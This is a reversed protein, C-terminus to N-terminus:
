FGKSTQFRITRVQGGALTAIQSEVDAIAAALENDSRFEVRKRTGSGAEFEVARAGAARVKRLAELRANLESLTAM